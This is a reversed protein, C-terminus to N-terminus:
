VSTATKFHDTTKFKLKSFVPELYLSKSLSFPTLSLTATSRSDLGEVAVEEACHHSALVKDYYLSFVTFSRRSITFYVIM